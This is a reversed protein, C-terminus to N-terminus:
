FPKKTQKRKAPKGKRKTIERAMRDLKQPREEVVVDLVFALLKFVELLRARNTSGEHSGINTIWKVALMMTRTRVDKPLFMEIRQHLSLSRFTGKKTKEKRQISRADLLFEIGSRVRNLAAAPDSWFLSFAGELAIATKGPTSKPIAFVPPAPEVFRPNLQRVLRDDPGWEWRHSTTGAISCVESCSKTQCQVLCVFKESMWEPDWNDDNHAERSDRTEASALSGPQISLSHRGCQPCPWPPFEEEDYSGLWLKDDITM